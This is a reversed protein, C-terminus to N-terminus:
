MQIAMFLVDDVQKYSGRWLDFNNKVHEYQEEMPKKWIDDLLNKMRAMKFKKGMPGGFQDPYGDSFMYIVDGEDMQLEQDQFDKDEVIEGGVSSRNGKLYIQEGGHFYIIPRMASAFRVKKNSTNIVCVIMDMGDNSHEAEVNQNLTETIENDLTRLIDSPKIIDQRSIIDKILTSGIMSMFAGPVGHGTSDACVIIFRDEGIKDFWYFDGSVIDRPRYFIFFGPFADRLKHVPPLISAQIRQAYNISDTIERNKQEIEEKQEVVEKTREDLSKELFAQLQKQNRERVKIIVVVSGVLIFAVLTIFWWTKWYPKRIVFSIALPEETTQWNRNYSRLLFTYEGDNIGYIVQPIRTIESWEDDYNVLKYQYSVLEPNRYSLGIFDIKLKYKDYPMVIENRFDVTKDSFSISVINNIPPILNGRDRSPDYQIIGKNTGFVVAGESDLVIANPNCDSTIGLERGFATIITDPIIFRSFGLRHGVWINNNGLLLSYCYDSILGDRTTYNYTTDELFHYLGNGYTAAWIDGKESVAVAQFENKKTYYTIEEGLSLKGDQIYYLRNSVTAIWGRGVHDIFIHNIKNHPLGDRTSFQLTEGTQYDYILVGNSTAIWIETNQGTIYNITNELSNRSDYVSTYRGSEEDLLYVGQNNTGVWIRGEPDHYVSSIRSGPLNGTWQYYRSEGDFDKGTRTIGNDSGLWFQGENEFLATINSGSEKEEFDYFLFAENLLLALGNGYTGLWINGELDQFVCIIDNYGLGNERNYIQHSSFSESDGSRQLKVVGKRFTSLWISGDADEVINQINDKELGITEGLNEIRVNSFGEKGPTISYVGMDSTGAYLTKNSGQFLKQFRTQPLSDIKGTFVPDGEDNRYSYICVSDQTGVLLTNESTFEVSYVLLPGTDLIRVSSTDQPDVVLLGSNQTAFVLNGQIDEKIDNIRSYTLAGTNLIHLHTGDFCSVSGDDHGFWLIGNRDRYSTRVYGDPISDTIVNARFTFGDYRCLGGGTGFWLYGYRDQNITYVFRDCMGDEVQFTRFSFSQSGSESSHLFFLFALVSVTIFKHSDKM